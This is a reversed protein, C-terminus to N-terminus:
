HRTRFTTQAALLRHVRTPYVHTARSCTSVPLLAELNLPTRQRAQQIPSRQQRVASRTLRQLLRSARHSCRSRDVELWDCASRWSVIPARSLAPGSTWNRPSFEAPSPSHATPSRLASRHEPAPARRTSYNS